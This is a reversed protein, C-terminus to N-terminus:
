QLLAQGVLTSKVQDRRITRHTEDPMRKRKRRLRGDGTENGKGESLVRGLCASLGVGRSRDTTRMQPGKM